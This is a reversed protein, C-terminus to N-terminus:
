PLQFDNISELLLDPAYTRLSDASLFGTLVAAAKLGLQHGVEVDHGTDGIVWDRPSLSPVAHLLDAKSQGRGTVLVSTFHKALEYHRLQRHVPEAYQRATVLHLAARKSLRGLTGDVGPIPVDLDIWPPAEILALWETEFALISDETEGSRRLIEAHNVKSRKLKWYHDLSLPSQPRLHRFLKYLRESADLVTGDLDIFLNM